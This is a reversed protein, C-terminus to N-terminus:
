CWTQIVPNKETLEVFAPYDIAQVGALLDSEAIGSMSLVDQLAYVHCGAAILALLNTNDRHGAYAAWVAGTQLIVDDGAVIRESVAQSLTNEAVLHLM